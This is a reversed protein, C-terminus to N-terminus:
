LVKTRSEMLFALFHAPFSGHRCETRSRAFSDGRGSMGAFAGTLFNDSSPGEREDGRVRPGLSQRLEFRFLNEARFISDRRGPRHSHQERKSSVPDGRERPRAPQSMKKM